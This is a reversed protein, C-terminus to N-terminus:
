VIEALLYDNGVTSLALLRLLYNNMRVKTRVVADCHDLICLDRLAVLLLIYVFRGNM